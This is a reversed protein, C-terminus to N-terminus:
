TPSGPENILFEETTRPGLWNFWLKSECYFREWEGKRYLYSTWKYPKGSAKTVRIKLKGSTEADLLSVARQSTETSSEDEMEPNLLYEREEIFVLIEEPEADAVVEVSDARRPKVELTFSYTKRRGRPKIQWDAGELSDLWQELRELFAFQLQTLKSKDLGHKV